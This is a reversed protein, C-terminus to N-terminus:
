NHVATRPHAVTGNVLGSNCVYHVGPRSSVYELLNSLDDWLGREEIEWSHGYIHWVGGREVVSDFLRKGLDVWNWLRSRQFFCTQLGEMNGVKAANKLYTLPTHPFSQVTTPMQFRDFCSHTFLMRVTRAGRYGADKVVRVASADYRGEPYCFMKIEEGVIDELAPKCPNIEAALEKPPLGRLIKHSVSHAGIEFGEETLTRLQSHSLSRPRYNHLPIYFTGNVGKSRLLEALKLDYLDGDDWSSTVFVAKPVM